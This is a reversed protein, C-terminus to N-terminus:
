ECVTPDICEQDYIKDDWAGEFNIGSWKFQVATQVNLARRFVEIEM